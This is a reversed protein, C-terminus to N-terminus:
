PQLSPGPSELAESSIGEQVEEAIEHTLEEDILRQERTDIGLMANLPCVRTIASEVLTTGGMMALLGLTRGKDGGWKKYGLIILTPGVLSRVIRDITGVNEKM